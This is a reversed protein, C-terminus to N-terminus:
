LREGQSRWQETVEGGPLFVTRAITLINSRVPDTSYRRLDCLTREARESFFTATMESATSRLGFLDTCFAENPFRLRESRARRLLTQSGQDINKGPGELRPM